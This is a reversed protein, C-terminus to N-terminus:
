KISFILDEPHVIYVVGDMINEIIAMTKSYCHDKTALEPHTKIAGIQTWTHFYYIEGRYECKRLNNM